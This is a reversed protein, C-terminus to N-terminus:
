NDERRAHGKRHDIIGAEPHVRANRSLANTSGLPVDSTRKRSRAAGGSAASYLVNRQANNRCALAPLHAQRSFADANERAAAVDGAEVCDDLAHSIAATLVVDLDDTEATTPLGERV